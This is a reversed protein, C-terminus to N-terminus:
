RNMESTKGFGPCVKMCESCGEAGILFTNCAYKDFRPSIGNEPIHIAKIPCIKACAGGCAECPSTLKAAAMSTEVPADTIVCALRVKSGYKPTMLLDSWGITGLGAAAALEKLSVPGELYKGSYPGGRAAIVLGKFGKKHLGRVLSFAEWSLHGAAIDMNSSYLDRLALDGVTAKSSIHRVAEPFVEQLLVVVSKAGPLLKRIGAAM